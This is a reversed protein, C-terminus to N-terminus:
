AYKKNQIVSIHLVRSCDTRVAKVKYNFNDRTKNDNIIQDGSLSFCVNIKIPSSPLFPLM